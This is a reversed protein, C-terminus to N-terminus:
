FVGMALIGCKGVKCSVLCPYTVLMHARITSQSEWNEYIIDHMPDPGSAGDPVLLPTVQEYLFRVM